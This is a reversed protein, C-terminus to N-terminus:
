FDNKHMLICIQKMLIHGWEESYLLQNQQNQRCICPTVSVIDIGQSNYTGHKGVSRSYTHLEQHSTQLEKTLKVQTPISTSYINGTFVVIHFVRFSQLKRNPMKSLGCKYIYYSLSSNFGYNNFDEM